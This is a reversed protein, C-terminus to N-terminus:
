LFFYAYYFFNSKFCLSYKFCLFVKYMSVDLQDFNLDMNLLNGKM